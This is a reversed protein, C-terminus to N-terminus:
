SNLFVSITKLLLFVVEDKGIECVITLIQLFPAHACKCTLHKQYSIFRPTEVHLDIICVVGKMLTDWFAGVTLFDHEKPLFYHSGDWQVQWTLYSEWLM